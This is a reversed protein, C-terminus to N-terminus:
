RHNRQITHYRFLLYPFDLAKVPRTSNYTSVGPLRAFCWGEQRLTVCGNPGRSVYYPGKEPSAGGWWDGLAGIGGEGEGVM